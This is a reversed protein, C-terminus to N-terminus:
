ARLLAGPRYLWGGAMQFRLLRSSLDFELGLPALQRDQEAIQHPRCLKQRPEIGLIHAPYDVGILLAASAHNTTPVPVDGFVCAVTHENVEAPRPGMLAVGLSRDLAPRSNTRATPRNVAYPAGSAARTPM